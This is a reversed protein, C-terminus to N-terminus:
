ADEPFYIPINPSQMLAREVEEVLGPVPIPHLAVRAHTSYVLGEPPPNGPGVYYDPTNTVFLANFVSQPLADGGTTVVGEALATERVEDIWAGSSTPVAVEPPMNGDIFIFYPIGPAKAVASKLLDRIGVRFSEPPQLKGGHKAGLVGRRHRSKAEVAVRVGTAKHVALFETHKQESDTEDEHEVQFGARVMTACVYVEYRAGQFQVPDRLRRLLSEPLVMHDGLVYLEYALLMYARTPGDLESGYAEGKEVGAAERSTRQLECMANYWQLIPHRDKLPKALEANGWEAGLKKKIFYSLFDPFTKWDGSWHIESGVAVMRFGEATETHIIPRVEGFERVRGAESARHHAIRELVERPVRGSHLDKPGVVDVKPRVM